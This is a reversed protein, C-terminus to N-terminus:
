SGDMLMLLFFLLCCECRDRADADLITSLAQRKMEEQQAMKQEQEDHQQGSGGGGAGGLMSGLGAGGAPSGGGGSGRLEAMRARRIAELEPDAM